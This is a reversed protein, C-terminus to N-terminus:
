LRLLAQPLGNSNILLMCGGKEQAADQGVAVPARRFRIYEQFPRCRGTVRGQDPANTPQLVHLYLPHRLLCCPDGEEEGRTAEKIRGGGVRSSAEEKEYSMCM